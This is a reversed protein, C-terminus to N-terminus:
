LDAHHSASLSPYLNLSTRVQNPIHYIQYISPLEVVSIEIGLVMAYRSTRIRILTSSTSYYM